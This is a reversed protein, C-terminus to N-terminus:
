QTWPILGYRAPYRPPPLILDDPKADPPRPREDPLADTHAQIAATLDAL